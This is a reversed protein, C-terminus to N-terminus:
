GPLGDVKDIQAQLLPEVTAVVAPVLAKVIPNPHIIASETVWAFVTKSIREALDEAVPLGQAKLKEVLDKTDFPKEMM